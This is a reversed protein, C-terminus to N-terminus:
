GRDANQTRALLGVPRILMILLFAIVDCLPASTSLFTIM